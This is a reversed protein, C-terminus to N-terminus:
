LLHTPVSQPEAEMARAYGCGYEHNCGPTLADGPCAGCGPCAEPDNDADIEEAFEIGNSYADFITESLVKLADRLEALDIPGRNGNTGTQCGLDFFYDDLQERATYGEYATKQRGRMNALHDFLAELATPKTM